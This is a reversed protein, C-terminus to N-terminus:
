ESELDTSSRMDRSIPQFINQLFNLSLDIKGCGKVDDCPKLEEFLNQHMERSFCDDIAALLGDFLWVVPLHTIRNYSDIFLRHDILRLTRLHMMTSFLGYLSADDYKM